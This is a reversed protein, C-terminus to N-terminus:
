NFLFILASTDLLWCATISTAIESNGGPGSGGPGSGGPSSGGPSSGCRKTSIHIQFGRCLHPHVQPVFSSATVLLGDLHRYSCIM